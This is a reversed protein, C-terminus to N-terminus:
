SRSDLCDCLTASSDELDVRSSVSEGVVPLYITNQGSSIELNRPQGTEPDLRTQIGPTQDRRPSPWSQSPFESYPSTSSM